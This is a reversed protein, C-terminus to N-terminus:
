ETTTPREYFTDPRSLSDLSVESFEVNNRPSIPLGNEYSYWTLTAPLRVHDIDQWASYRIWHVEDSPGDKGYTVTYGLWEMQYSDPNYHLFYEDDPSVGVGAEYAIRIGPFRTGEFTLPDAEEYVIGPDALVFPMAYFYSMLNHYFVPDKEYTGAKWVGERDEGLSYEPHDIRDLRTKLDITHKEEGMRYSLTAYEQWQDLGGHADFVKGLAPPYKLGTHEPEIQQVEQKPEQKCGLVLLLVCSFTFIKM